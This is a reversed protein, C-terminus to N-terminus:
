LYKSTQHIYRVANIYHWTSWSGTSPIQEIKMFGPCDGDRNLKMKDENILPIIDKYGKMGLSTDHNCYSYFFM